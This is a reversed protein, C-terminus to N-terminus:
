GQVLPRQLGHFPKPSKVLQLRMGGLATHCLIWAYGQVTHLGGMKDHAIALKIKVPRAEWRKCAAASRTEPARTISLM